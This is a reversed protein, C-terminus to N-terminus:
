FDEVERRGQDSERSRRRKRGRGSRERRWEEYEDREEPDVRRRRMVPELEILDETEDEPPHRQPKEDTSM